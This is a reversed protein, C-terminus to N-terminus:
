SNLHLIFYFTSGRGEVNRGISNKLQQYPDFVVDMEEDTMGVGTDSVEFYIENINERYLRVVLKVGGTNTYKIANSVLNNLVQRLRFDDGFYEDCINDDFNLDLSIGKEIAKPKFQKIVKEVALRLNFKEITLNLEGAEIKSLDLLDNILQLLDKSSADVITLNEKQETDLDSNSVIDVMGMLSNLSTRMDHVVNALFRSKSENDKKAKQAIQYTKEKDNEIELFDEKKNIYQQYLVKYRKGRRYVIILLIIALVLFFMGGILLVFQKKLLLDKQKLLGKKYDQDRIIAETEAEKEKIFFREQMKNIASVGVKTYHKEAIMAYEKHYMLAVKYEGLNEYSLSLYEIAKKYYVDDEDVNDIIWLLENICDHYYEKEYHLLARKYHVLISKTADKSIILSQAKNLLTYVKDYQKLTLYCNVKGIVGRFLYDNDNKKLLSIGANYKEIASEPVNIHYYYDGIDFYVEAIKRNSSLAKQIEVIKNFYKLVNSNSNKQKYVEIIDYYLNLLKKSDGKIVISKEIESFIELAKDSEGMNRLIVAKKVNANTLREKLGEKKAIDIMMNVYFLAEENYHDIYFDIVEGLVDIKKIPDHVSQLEMNLSDLREVRSAQPLADIFLFSFVTIMILFAAGNNM